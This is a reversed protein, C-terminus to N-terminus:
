NSGRGSTGRTYVVAKGAAAVAAVLIYSCLIYGSSSIRCSGSSSIVLTSSSSKTSHIAPQIADNLTEGM